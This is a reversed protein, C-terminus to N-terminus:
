DKIRRAFEEILKAVEDTRTHHLAHGAGAMEVLQAHPLRAALKEAHNWAPVIEDQAGTILLLPTELEEYRPSQRELFASLSRVDETSARFSDPRLSLDAGTRTRYGDTPAEPAFVNGIASDLVLRGLPLSLTTTFLRGFIPWGSVNVYWNVGGQWPNVAGALLVGGSADQAHDLLFALVVSGSWSHGVLIPQEVGLLNLAERILGAQMAPDPWPGTPRESYGYGPRDFAIVRHSKALLPLLSAEFDRLSTSAGHLLVVPSGEGAEVYHLRVGDVSLFAGTPPHAQETQRTAWTTYAALMAMVVGLGLCLKFLISM